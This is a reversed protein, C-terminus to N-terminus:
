ETDEPRVPHPLPIILEKEMERSLVKRRDQAGEGPEGSSASYCESVTWSASCGVRKRINVTAQNSVRVSLGMFFGGKGESFYIFVYMCVVCYPLFALHDLAQLVEGTLLAQSLQSKEAQLLPPEPPSRAVDSVVSPSTFLLHLWTTKLPAWHCSLLCC